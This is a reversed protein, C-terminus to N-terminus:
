SQEKKPTQPRGQTTDLNPAIPVHHAQSRKRRWTPSTPPVPHSLPVFTLSFFLKPAAHHDQCGWSFPFTIKFSTPM